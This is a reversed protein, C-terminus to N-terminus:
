ALRNRNPITAHRTKNEGAAPATNKAKEEEIMMLMDDVSTSFKVLALGASPALSDARRLVPVMTQAPARMLEIPLMPQTIFTRSLRPM